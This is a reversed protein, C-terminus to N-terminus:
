HPFSIASLGFADYGYKALETEMSVMPFKVIFLCFIRPFAEPIFLIGHIVSANESIHGM